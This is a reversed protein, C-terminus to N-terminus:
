QARPERLHPRLPLTYIATPERNASFWCITVPVTARGGMAALFPTGYNVAVHQSRCLVGSWRCILTMPLIFVCKRKYSDSAIAVLRGM